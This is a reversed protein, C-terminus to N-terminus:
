QRRHEGVKRQPERLGFREVVDALSHRSLSSAGSVGSGPGWRKSPRPSQRKTAWSWPWRVVGFQPGEGGKTTKGDTIGGCVHVASGNRVCESVRRWNRLLPHQECRRDGPRWRRERELHRPWSDSGRERSRRPSVPLLRRGGCLALGHSGVGDRAWRLRVLMVGWCGAAGRGCPM